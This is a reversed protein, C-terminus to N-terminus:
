VPEPVRESESVRPSPGAPPPPTRDPRLACIFAVIAALAQIALVVLAFSRPQHSANLLLIPEAVAVAGLPLLFWSRKLALM